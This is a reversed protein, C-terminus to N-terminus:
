IYCYFMSISCIVSELQRSCNESHWGSRSESSDTYVCQGRESPEDQAWDWFTVSVGSIYTYNNLWPGLTKVALHSVTEYYSLHTFASVM